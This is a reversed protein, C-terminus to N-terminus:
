ASRIRSAQLQRPGLPQAEGGRAYRSMTQYDGASPAKDHMTHRVASLQQALQGGSNVPLHLPSSIHVLRAGDLWHSIADAEETLGAPAITGSPEVHDSTQLLAEIIPAPDVGRAVTAAGALTGHRICHIEWGGTSDQQAAVIETVAALMKIRQTRISAQTYAALRDRWVAADEFRGQGSLENMRSSLSTVVDRVDGSMATQVQAVISAYADADGSATCPASCKGLEALACGPIDTRPRKPIKLTCTRLQFTHALAEAVINAGSSGPFPGLYRAGDAVDDKVARAITLRPAHETSLKLWTQKEPRKSRHNYRPQAEAILRLERVRAELATACVIPTVEVAIAVMESMRRRTESATFYGRVRRRINKSTGVYLAAGQADKFIYVGPLEPLGAALHRKTRQATSVKSSFSQLDEVTHVGLGAVREVLAHFVDATARADDFARHTPAVTARFHAALTALKCNRVEGRQLALRAIRATDLVHPAPWTYGLKACAGKLFGIDYPANHAILISGRMFELFSPLALSLRPATAVLSDTIGTLAAVFPPISIGPNVLTAFEGIVEGGRIKVAGIETIGADVAAGGTTELDVVVYTADSLPTGLGDTTLQEHV